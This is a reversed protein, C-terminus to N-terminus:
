GFTATIGTVNAQSFNVAGRFITSSNDAARILLSGLTTTLTIDGGLQTLGGRYEGAYYFGLNSYNDSSITVGHKRGISDLSNLGTSSLEIRDQNTDATRMTGKFTGNSAFVSGDVAVRFPASSYNQHGFWIGSNNAKWVNNTGLSGIEITGGLLNPSYVMKGNIFTGGNYTGNAIASAMSQATSAMSVAGTAVPDSNVNSWSISGGTMNIDGSLSTGSATLKGTLDVKFPANNFNNSGLSIGNEDAKFISNGSGIAVKGKFIVDGNTDLVIQDVWVPNATTGTNKQLKLGDTANIIVRSKKDSRTITLNMETATIGNDDITFSGSQNTILLNNGAILQGFLRESVVGDPTIATQWNLGGNKSLAVVGNQVIVMRQPDNSDTVIIGRRSMSISNNLGGEIQRDITSWTNDLIQSVEDTRAINNDYAYKNAAFTNSNSVATRHENDFKDAFTQSKVINSITLKITDSEYNTSIGIIRATISIDSLDYNINIFDGLVVKSRDSSEELELVKFLNVIDIDASLKPERITKFHEIAIEKLKIPDSIFENTYEAEFIFEDLELIQEHTLNNEISLLNYLTGIQLTVSAINGSVSNIETQKVAIQSKKTAELILEATVDESRSKKADLTDLIVELEAKLDSLEGQKVILTARISELQDLLNGFTTENNAKLQSWAILADHLGISMDEYYYSFDELYPTGTSSVESITLGDKGRVYLRTAQESSDSEYTISDLLKGYSTVLGKNFGYAKPDYLNITKNLTNFFVLGEYTEAVSFVFDLRSGTFELSRFQTNYDGHVSGVSWSTGMLGDNLLQTATKSTAKYNTIDRYSLQIPLGSCEIQFYDDSSGHSKITKQVLFYEKKHEDEFLILHKEKLKKVHINKRTSHRM